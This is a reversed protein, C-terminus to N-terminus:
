AFPKTLDIDGVVFDGIVDLGKNALGKYTAYAAGVATITGATSIFAQVAKKGKGTRKVLRKYNNEAELRKNIEKLESNSMQKVSKKIHAKRYDEHVDDAYRKRGAPTLSGDKNQYRRQGWKMGKVGWHKLENNDM